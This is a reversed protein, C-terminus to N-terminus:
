LLHSHVARQSERQPQPQHSRHLFGNAFRCGNRGGWFGSALNYTGGSSTEAAPQGITGGVSYSGGASSTAGGGAVNWWDLNYGGQASARVVGLLAVGIVLLLLSFFLKRKM